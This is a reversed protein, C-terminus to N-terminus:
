RVLKESKYDPDIFARYYQPTLADWTYRNGANWLIWSELMNRRLAAMQARVEAPGYRPKGLSFDQLYPRIKSYNLGLKSYADKLGHDIVKYPQSNPNKLGYEGTYYHSPYMMPYVYDANEVLVKLDQGIGMDDKVTTTLGFVDASIKVNYPKLKERAYKFFDGLNAMATKSNHPKSYRCRATNGESPYRVYDFQIEDFGAKAARIAVELNYDWVERSYPDTWTAGNHSRWLDGEPTRVALDKRKKPAINDKFMVIRAVTYLEAAKFDGVMGEPDPIAAEYSGLEAAREVGPIYIKGDTEKVAVVVTNVVSQKIRAIISRRNKTSGAGWCTLHIGRVTKESLVKQRVAETSVTVPIVPPKNGTATSLLQQGAPIAPTGSSQAVQAALLGPQALLLFLLAYTM